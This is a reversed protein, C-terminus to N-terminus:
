TCYPREASGKEQGSYASGNETYGTRVGHEEAPLHWSVGITWQPEYGLDKFGGKCPREINGYGEVYMLVQPM